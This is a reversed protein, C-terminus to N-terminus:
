VPHHKVGFGLVSSVGALFARRKGKSAQPVLAVSSKVHAIALDALQLQRYAAAPRPYDSAIRGSQLPSRPLAGSSVAAVDVEALSLPRAAPPTHLLSSDFSPISTLRSVLSPAHLMDSEADSQALRSAKLADAYAYVDKLQSPRGHAPRLVHNDNSLVLSGAECLEKSRSMWTARYAVGAINMDSRTIIPSRTFLKQSHSAFDERPRFFTGLTAVQNRFTRLDMREDPNVTLVSGLIRQAEASVGYRNYFYSKSDTVFEAFRGDAFTPQAWLKRGVM